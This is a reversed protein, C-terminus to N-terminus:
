ASSPMRSGRQDRPSPSTYLLCVQSLREQTYIARADDLQMAVENGNEDSRVIQYNIFFISSVWDCFIPSIRDHMAPSYRVYDLSTMPDTRRSEKSHALIVINMGKEDRLPILYDRRIKMFMDAQKQYAKGFGGMATAM